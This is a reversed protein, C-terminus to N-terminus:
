QIAIGENNRILLNVLEEETLPKSYYYGQILDCGQDAIFKAQQETEVGEAVTQYGIAKALSIIAKCVAEGELNVGIDDVFSKDIKLVQIPYKKLYSLSSYGTGFDDISLQVGLQRLKNLIGLVKEPQEMAIRETIELTLQIPDVSPFAALHQRIRKVFDSRILERASINVCCALDPYSAKLSQLQSLSTKIVWDSLTIIFDSREAVPIFSDPSVWGMLPHHWRILAEMGSFGQKAIAYQAQYRLEFQNREIAHRLETEINVTQNLENELEQKFVQVSNRGNQKAHYMALDAHKLLTQYSQADDPFLAIGISASIMLQHNHIVYPEALTTVLREGLALSNTQDLQPFLVAFEDGGLRALTDGPRILKNIRETVQKLLQDGIDHGHVDNIEKFYDLDIFMLSFGHSSRKFEAILKETREHLLPRNAAGTLADYFALKFIEKEAQKRREVADRFSLLAGAIRGFEGSDKAYMKEINPMEITQCEDSNAMQSLAEAIYVMKRNIWSAFLLVLLLVVVLGVMGALILGFIWKEHLEYEEAHRAETREALLYTIRQIYLSFEIYSVQAQQLYNQAVSPDIAIIDTAQVIFRRFNQFEQELLLVSGHNVELLLESGTLSEVEASLVYVSDVIQTHLRYLQVESLQGLKAQVIANAVRQHLEGIQESFEAAQQVIDLDNIQKQHILYSQTKISSLSLYVMVVAVLSLLLVPLFTLLLLSRSAKM